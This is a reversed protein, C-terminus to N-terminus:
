NNFQVERKSLEAMVAKIEPAAEAPVTGCAGCKKGDSLVLFYTTDAGLHVKVVEDVATAILHMEEISYPKM